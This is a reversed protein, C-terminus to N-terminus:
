GHMGRLRAASVVAAAALAATEFRLTYASLTTPRFGAAETLRREDDELGGEPGVVVIVPTTDLSPPPPSGGDEALWRHMGTSGDGAASQLIDELGAPATVDVAWASGCQKTAELALRRLKELHSDRVRSGVDRSRATMLPVVRTAGLEAAKEVVWGFRERDGAGVVLTLDAPRPRREAAEIEVEWAKGALALRGTAVLGAGDRLAVCEGDRARRVRLHHQEGEDPRARDGSTQSPSGVAGVPLLVTIVAAGRGGGV